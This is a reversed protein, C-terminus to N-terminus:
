ISEVGNLELFGGIFTSLLKKWFDSLESGSPINKEFIKGATYEKYM